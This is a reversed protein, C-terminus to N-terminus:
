RTPLGARHWGFMGGTLTILNSFGQKALMECVVESCEGSPCVLVIPRDTPLSKVRQSLSPLPLLRAGIIHGTAFEESSRVDIVVPRNDSRLQAYLDTPTIAQIQRSPKSFWRPWM